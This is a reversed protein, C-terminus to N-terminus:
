NDRVPLFLQRPARPNSVQPNFRGRARWVAYAAGMACSYAMLGSWWVLVGTALYSAGSWDMVLWLAWFVTALCTWVLVDRRAEPLERSALWSASFVLVPSLLICGIVV